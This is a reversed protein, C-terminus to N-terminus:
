KLIAFHEAIEAMKEALATALEENLPIGCITTDEQLMTALQPVRLARRKNELAKESNKKARLIEELFHKHAPNDLSIDSLQIPGQLQPFGYMDLLIDVIEPDFQRGKNKYFDNIIRVFAEEPSELRDDHYIRREKSASFCDFVTAIRAGLSIEEGKLPRYSKGSKQDYYILSADIMEGQQIERIAPYGKKIRERNQKDKYKEFSGDYRQHHDRVILATEMPVQTKIKEFGLISHSQMIMEQEPSHEGPHNLVNSVSEVGKGIDHIYAGFIINGQERESLNAFFPFRESHANVHQFFAHVGDGVTKVHDGTFRDREQISAAQQQLHKKTQKNRIISLEQYSRTIEEFLTINGAIRAFFTAHKFCSESLENEHITASYLGFTKYFTCLANILETKYRNNAPLASISPAINQIHREHNLLLHLAEEQSSVGIHQLYEEEKGWEGQVFFFSSRSIFDVITNQFELIVIFTALYNDQQQKERKNLQTGNITHFPVQFQLPYELVTPLNKSKFILESTNQLLKLVESQISPSLIGKEQALRAQILLQKTLFIQNKSFSDPFTEEFNSLSEILRLAEEPHGRHLYAVALTRTTQSFTKLASDNQVYEGERLPTVNTEEMRALLQQVKNPHTCCLEQTSVHPTIDLGTRIDLEAALMANLLDGKAAAREILALSFLIDDYEGLQETTLLSNRIKRYTEGVIVLPQIYDRLTIQPDKTGNLGELISKALADIRAEKENSPISYDNLVDHLEILFTGIHFQAIFNSANEIFNTIEYGELSEQIKQAEEMLPDAPLILFFHRKDSHPTSIEEM